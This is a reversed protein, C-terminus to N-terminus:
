ADHAFGLCLAGVTTCRDQLTSGIAMIAEAYRTVTFRRSDWRLIELYGTVKCFPKGCQILIRRSESFHGPLVTHVEEVSKDVFKLLAVCEM